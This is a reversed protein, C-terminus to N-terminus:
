SGGPPASRLRRGSPPVLSAELLRRPFFRNLGLSSHRRGRIFPYVHSRKWPIWPFRIHSLRAPAQGKQTNHLQASNATVNRFTWLESNVEKVTIFQNYMKCPIVSSESSISLLLPTIIFTSYICGREVASINSTVTNSRLFVFFWDCKM